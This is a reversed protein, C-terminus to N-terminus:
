IPGELYRRQQCCLGGDTFLDITFAGISTEILVSM